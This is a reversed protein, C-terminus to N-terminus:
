DSCYTTTALSFFNDTVSTTAFYRRPPPLKQSPADRTPSACLLRRDAPSESDTRSVVCKAVSRNRKRASNREVSVRKGLLTNKDNVSSQASCWLYLSLLAMRRLSQGFSPNANEASLSLLAPFPLRNEARLRFSVFSILRKRSSVFVFGIYM